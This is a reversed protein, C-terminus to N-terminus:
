YFNGLYFSYVWREQMRKAMVGLQTFMAQSTKKFAPVICSVIKKVGIQWM